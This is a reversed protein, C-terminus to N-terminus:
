GNTRGELEELWQLLRDHSLLRGAATPCNAAVAVFMGLMRKLAPM